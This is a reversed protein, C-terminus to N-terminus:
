SRSDQGEEAIVQMRNKRPPNGTAHKYLQLNKQKQVKVNAYRKMEQLIVDADERSKGEALSKVQAVYTKKDAFGYQEVISIFSFWDHEFKMAKSPGADEHRQADNVTVNFNTPYLPTSDLSRALDFDILTACPENNDNSHFVVNSARVDGFVAKLEFHVRVLCEAASTLHGVYRADHSGKVFPYTLVAFDPSAVMQTAKPHFHQVFELNVHRRESKEIAAKRAFARYDFEKEVRSPYEDDDGDYRFRVKVRKLDESLQFSKFQKLEFKVCWQTILVLLHAIRQGPTDQHRNVAVKAYQAQRVSTTESDIKCLDLEGDQLDSVDRTEGTGFVYVEFAMNEVDLVAGMMRIDNEEGCCNVAKAAYEFLQFRKAELSTTSKTCEILLIPVLMEDTKVWASIDVKCRTYVGQEHFLSICPQKSERTLIENFKPLLATFFHSHLDTEPACTAKRTITFQCRDYVAEGDSLQEETLESSLSLLPLAAPLDLMGHSEYLMAPEADAGSPSKGVYVWKSGVLTSISCTLFDYNYLYRM